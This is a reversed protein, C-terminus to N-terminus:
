IENQVRRTSQKRSIVSYPEQVGMVQIEHPIIQEYVKELLIQSLRNPEFM